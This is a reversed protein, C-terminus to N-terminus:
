IYEYLINGCKLTLPMIDDNNMSQPITINKYKVLRKSNGRSYRDEHRPFRFHLLINGRVLERNVTITYGQNTGRSIHFFPLERLRKLSGTITLRNDIGFTDDAMLEKVTFRVKFVSNYTNYNVNDLLFKIMKRDSNKLKYFHSLLSVIDQNYNAATGTHKIINSSM